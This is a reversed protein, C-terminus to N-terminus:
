LTFFTDPDHWEQRTQGACASLFTPASEAAYIVHSFPPMVFSVSRWGQKSLGAYSPLPSNLNLVVHQLRVYVLADLKACVAVGGYRAYKKLLEDSVHSFVEGYALPTRFGVSVDMDEDTKAGKLWEVRAKAEDHAKRGQDLSDCVEFCAERFILDPPSQREAISVLEAVSFDVGLGRLFAACVCRERESKNKNSLFHDTELNHEILKRKYEEFKERDTM